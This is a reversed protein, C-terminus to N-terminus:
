LAAKLVSHGLFYEALLRKLSDKEFELEKIRQAQSLKDIELGDILARLNRNEAELQRFRHETNFQDNSPNIACYAQHKSPPAFISRTTPRSMDTHQLSVSFLKDNTSPTEM